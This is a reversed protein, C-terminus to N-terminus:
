EGQGRVITADIRNAKPHTNRAYLPIDWYAIVRENEYMPKPQTKSFCPVIIIIIIIIIIFMFLKVNNLM